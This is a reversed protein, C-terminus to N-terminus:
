HACFRNATTEDEAPLCIVPLYAPLCVPLCATPKRSCTRITLAKLDTQFRTPFSKGLYATNRILRGLVPQFSARSVLSLAACRAWCRFLFLSRIKITFYNERKWAQCLRASIGVLSNRAARYKVLCPRDM